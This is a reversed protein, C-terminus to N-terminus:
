SLHEEKMRRQISTLSAVDRTIPKTTEVFYSVDFQPRGLEEEEEEKKEEEAQEQQEEEEEQSMCVAFLRVSLAACRGICCLVNPHPHDVM